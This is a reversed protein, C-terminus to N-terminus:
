TGQVLPVYDASPFLELTRIARREDIYQDAYTAQSHLELRLLVVAASEALGNWYVCRRGAVASSGVVQIYTM